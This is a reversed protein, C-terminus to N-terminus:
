SIVHLHLKWFLLAPYSLVLDKAKGHHQVLCYQRICQISKCQVSLFELFHLSRSFSTIEESPTEM